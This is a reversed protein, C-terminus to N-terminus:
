RKVPDVRVELDTPHGRTIVPHSDTTIFLLEGDSEIRAQIAYSMREDIQTTDYELRFAVPVRLPGYITQEALVQAAVDMKSVDALVVRLQADPPLAVRQLYFVNGTVAAMNTEQTQPIAEPGNSGRGCGCLAAALAIMLTRLTRTHM